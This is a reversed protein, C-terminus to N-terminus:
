KQFVLLTSLNRRAHVQRRGPPQPRPQVAVHELRDVLELDLQRIAFETTLFTGSWLKNSSVYDTCKVFIHGKPRTVRTVERLGDNILKQLEKPSTPADLLGFRGYLDKVMSTSRGGVSVYPPDYAAGDFTNDAYPLSRFDVGDLAVDHVTLYDPQWVTWWNGKGYTPDIITGANKWYLSAADAILDGNSKWATAALVPKSMLVDM